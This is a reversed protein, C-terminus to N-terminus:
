ACASQALGLSNEFGSRAVAQHWEQADGQLGAHDFEMHQLFFDRISANVWQMGVQRLGGKSQAARRFQEWLGGAEHALRWGSGYALPLLCQSYSLGSGLPFESVDADDYLGMTASLEAVDGMGRFELLRPMFRGILDVRGAHLLMSHIASLEATGFLVVILRIGHDLILDNSLDRLMTLAPEPWCQAEDIFLMIRDSHSSQAETWLFNALRSRRVEIKSSTALVHSVSKLLEGFFVVESFRPHWKANVHYTPMEPFALRLQEILVDIASSKGVRPDGRFCVGPSRELAINAVVDFAARIAPTPLQIQNNIVPHGAQQAPLAGPEAPLPPVGDRIAAMNGYTNM